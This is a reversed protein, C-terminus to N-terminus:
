DFCVDLGPKVELTMKKCAPCLHGIGGAKRGSWEFGGPIFAPRGKDARDDLLAQIQADDLSVPSRGYQVAGDKGCEPCVTVYVDDSLKAINVHVLGCNKCYFPFLSCETHSLMGGGITVSATYGCDCAM